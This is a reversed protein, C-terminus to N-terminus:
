ALGGLFELDGCGQWGEERCCLLFSLFLGYVRIGPAGFGFGVAVCFGFDGLALVWIRFETRFAQGPGGRLSRRPAKGLGRPSDVPCGGLGGLNGLAPYAPYRSYGGFAIIRIIPGGLLTGRNESVEWM